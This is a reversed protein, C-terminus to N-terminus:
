DILKGSIKPFVSETITIFPTIKDAELQKTYILNELVDMDVVEVTKVLGDINLTKCFELLGDENISKNERRSLTCKVGKHEIKDIELSSMLDTISSKIAEMSAKVEKSTNNINYFEVVKSMLDKLGSAGVETKVETFDKSDINGSDIIMRM